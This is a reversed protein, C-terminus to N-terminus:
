EDVCPHLLKLAFRYVNIAAGSKCHAAVVDSYQAGGIARAAHSSMRPELQKHGQKLHAM